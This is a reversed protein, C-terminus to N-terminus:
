EQEIVEEAAGRDCTTQQLPRAPENSLTPSEEVRPKVEDQQPEEENEQRQKQQQRSNRRSATAAHHRRFTAQITRAASQKREQRRVFALHRSYKSAQQRAQRRRVMCQIRMAAEHEMEEKSHLREALRAAEADMVVSSPTSIYSRAPSPQHQPRPQEEHPPRQFPQSSKELDPFPSGYVDTYHSGHGNAMQLLPDETSTQDDEESGDSAFAPQLEEGAVVDYCYRLYEWVHASVGVHYKCLQLLMFGLVRDFVDTASLLPQTSMSVSLTRTFWQQTLHSNELGSCALVSSLTYYSLVAAQKPGVSVAFAHSTQSTSAAGRIGQHGARIAAQAYLVAHALRSTTSLARVVCIDSTVPTAFKLRM